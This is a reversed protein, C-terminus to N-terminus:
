GKVAGAVVGSMIQKQLILYLIVLPTAAMVLSAMILGLDSSYTGYFVQTAIPITFLGRQTLVLSPLLFDNWIAVAYLTAITATIPKLLPFVIRWFTQYVNAGDIRAAEELSVPVSTRIYSRYMFVGMAVSFGTHMLILTLRNNLINMRAGYISVLPIMLVQFPIVMSSLMLSYFFKNIKWENRAFIYAATASSLIILAVSSLTIILSNAFVRPFNVAKFANVFNETTLGKKGKFALPDVIIDRRSKISNILVIYIPYLFILLLLILVVITLVKIATNEKKTKKIGTEYNNKM